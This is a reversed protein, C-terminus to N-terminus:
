HCYCDAGSCRGPHGEHQACECGVLRQPQVLVSELARTQKRLVSIIERVMDPTPPANRNRLTGMTASIGYEIELIRNHTESNVSITM